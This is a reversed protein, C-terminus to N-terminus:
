IQKTQIDLIEYETVNSAIELEVCDGIQLGLLSKGLPSKYSLLGKSPDSEHASVIRYEKEEDTDCNVITVVSGFRVKDNPVISVDVVKCNNLINNYEKLKDQISEFKQQYEHIEINDESSLSNSRVEQMEEILLKSESKLSSIKERIINVGISTIFEQQM